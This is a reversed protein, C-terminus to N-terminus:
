QHRANIILRALEVFRALRELLYGIIRRTETTVRKQVRREGPKLLVITVPEEGVRALQRAGTRVVLRLAIEKELFSQGLRGLSIVLGGLRQFIEHPLKGPM